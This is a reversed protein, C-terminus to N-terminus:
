MHDLAVINMLALGEKLVDAVLRSLSLRLAAESPDDAMVRHHAYFHHYRTALEYLYTPILHTRYTQSVEAIVSAFNSLHRILAREEANYAEKPAATAEGVKALVSHIRAHAYQVYYIPNKESTDKALQLDFDLHTEATKSLMFWSFVDRPIEDLVEDATVFNGERKSMRIKEGGEKLQVQQYLTGHYRNADLGIGTLGAKMRPIHGFHNAGLVCIGFDNGWEDLKMRYFAIDDLFYTTTKDSKVLVTERDDEQLGSKLWVAGEREITSEKAELIALTDASRGSAVLDSQLSWTDFTIGMRDATGRIQAVQTEIARKRMAEVQQDAPLHLIDDGERAISEALEQIYPAPYGGEPFTSEIGFHAKYYHLVSLAFKNAQGGIDNVYFDRHVSHGQAELVRVITEGIPGGRANGIHLPGTPNASIYEVVINQPNGVREILRERLSELAITYPDDHLSLNLFGPGAIEIDTFQGTAILKQRIQEALERPNGKAERAVQLAVNTAFDAAVYPPPESVVVDAPYQHGLEDLAQALLTELPQIM